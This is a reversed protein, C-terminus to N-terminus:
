GKQHPNVWTTGSFLNHFPHRTQRDVGHISDLLIININSIIKIKRTFAYAKTCLKTSIVYTKTLM